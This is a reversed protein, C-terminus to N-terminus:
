LKEVGKLYKKLNRYFNEHPGVTFFVIEAEQLRYSILYTQKHHNIKHIRFNSLDRKKVIGLDPKQVIRDVEDEIALQFSRGQKKVFKRFPHKFFRDM